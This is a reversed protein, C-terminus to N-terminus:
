FLRYESNRGTFFSLNPVYTCSGKNFTSKNLFSYKTRDHDKGPNSQFKKIYPSNIFFSVM